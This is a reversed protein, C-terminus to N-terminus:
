DSGAASPTHVEFDPNSDNDAAYGNVEADEPDEEIIAEDTGSLKCSKSGNQKVKDYWSERPTMEIETEGPKEVRALGANM